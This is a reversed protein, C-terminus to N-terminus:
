CPLGYFSHGKGCSAQAEEEMVPRGLAQWTTSSTGVRGCNFEGPVSLGKVSQYHQVGNEVNVDATSSLDEHSLGNFSYESKM